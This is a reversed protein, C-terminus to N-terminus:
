KKTTKASAESSKAAGGWMPSVRAFHLTPTLARVYVISSGNPVDIDIISSEGDGGLAVRVKGDAPRRVLAAHQTAPLTTWARLDPQEAKAIVIGGILAIMSVTKDKSERQQIQVAASAAARLAARITPVWWLEAERRQFDRAVIADISDLAAAPTMGSESGVKIEVPRNQTRFKLRPYVARFLVTCTDPIVIPIEVQFSTREPGFGADVLVLVFPYEKPEQALKAMEDSLTKAGCDMAVQKAASGADVAKLARMYAAWQVVSSFAVVPNAAGAARAAEIVSKMESKATPFDGLSFVQDVGFGFSSGGPFKTAIKGDMRSAPPEKVSYGAAKLDELMFQQLRRAESAFAGAAASDAADPGQLLADLAAYTNCLIEDHPQLLFVTQDAGMVAQGADQMFQDFNWNAPDTPCAAYASEIHRLFNAERRVHDFLDVAEELKGADSLIKAKELGVWLRDRDYQAGIAIKGNKTPTPVLKDAEAAAADFNGRAHADTATNFKTTCGGAIAAAIVLAGPLSAIGM